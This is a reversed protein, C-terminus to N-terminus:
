PIVRRPSAEANECARCSVGSAKQLRGIVAFLNSARPNGNPEVM